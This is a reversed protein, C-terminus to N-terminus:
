PERWMVFHPRPNLIPMSFEVIFRKGDDPEPDGTWADDESFDEGELEDLWHEPEDLRM